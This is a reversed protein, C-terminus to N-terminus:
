RFLPSDEVSLVEKEDPDFVPLAEADFFKLMELINDKFM